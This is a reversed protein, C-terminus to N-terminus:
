LDGASTHFTANGAEERRFRELANSANWGDAQAPPAARNGLYNQVLTALACGGIAKGAQKARQYVAPWDPSQGSILPTFEALLASIRDQNEITCDVVASVVPIPGHGPCATFLALVLTLGLVPNRM